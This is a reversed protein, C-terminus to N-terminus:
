RVESAAIMATANRIAANKAASLSDREGYYDYSDGHESYLVFHIYYSNVCWRSDAYCSRSEIEGIRAEGWMIPWVWEHPDEGPLKEDLWASM